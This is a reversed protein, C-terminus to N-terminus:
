GHKVQRIFIKEYLNELRDMGKGAIYDSEDWVEQAREADAEHKLKEVTHALM